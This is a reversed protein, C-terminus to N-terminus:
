LLSGVTNTTMDKLAGLIAPTMEMIIRLFEGGALKSSSFLPSDPSIVKWLNLMLSVVMFWKLVLFVAGAIRDILSLRVAYTAKRLFGAILWVGLWVIAFLTGYGLVQASYVTMTSAYPQDAGLMPSVLSVALPGAARCAIVAAAIAVVSGLQKIAGKKYGIVAGGALLILFIIDLIAM